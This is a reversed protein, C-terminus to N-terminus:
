HEGGSPGSHLGACRHGGGQRVGVRGTYSIKRGEGNRRVSRLRRGFKQRRTAAPRGPPLRRGPGASLDGPQHPHRSGLFYLPTVVTTHLNASLSRSAAKKINRCSEKFVKLVNSYTRYTVADFVEKELKKFQQAPDPDM